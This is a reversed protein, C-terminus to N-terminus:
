RLYMKVGCRWTEVRIEMNEINTIVQMSFMVRWMRHSVGTDRAANM